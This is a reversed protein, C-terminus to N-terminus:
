RRGFDPLNVDQKSSVIKKRIKKCDQMIKILQKENKTNILKKIQRMNNIFLDIGKTINKHNYLFIDKWMIENSAATRTFDRLGGASFKVINSKKKKEFNMATKVMNYAVLHPIHSTISFIHDHEKLNMYVIKSGIQTWFKSLIKVHKKNTNKDRILVCWKGSFLKENGFKPGSVESGAIPHSSIWNINKKIRNKIKRFMKEKASGVDTVITNNNIYKELKNFVKFYEDLHTCIIIMDMNPIQKKSDKLIECNLRLRKIQKIHNKSKELIYIKKSIKKKITARLISSGILGCGVILIKKFM